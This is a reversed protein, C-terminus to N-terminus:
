QISVYRRTILESALALACGVVGLLAGTVWMLTAWGGNASWDVDLLGHALVLFVTVLVAQTTFVLRIAKQRRHNSDGSDPVAPGTVLAHIWAEYLGLFVLAALAFADPVLLRRDVTASLTARWAFFGLGTVAGGFLLARWSSPLFHSCRRSVLSATRTSVDVYRAPRTALDLDRLVRHAVFSLGAFAALSPGAIWASPAPLAVAVVAVALAAAATARDLVLLPRIPPVTVGQTLAHRSAMALAVRVVLWPTATALLGAALQALHATM